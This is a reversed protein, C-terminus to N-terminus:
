WYGIDKRFYNINNRNIYGKLVIKAMGFYGLKKFRRNDQGYFHKSIRFKRKDYKRSLVYDESHQLTEDFQGYERFKDTRTLFYAGVAFPTKLSIIKNVFNFLKFFLHTKFDNSISKVNCTMLDLRKNIMMNINDKINDKSLIIADADLFLIYETSVLSAAINRGYAVLGGDILEINLKDQFALILDSIKDRTKDSSFGDAIIVRTGRIESQLYISEITKYIYNEENYSPIIITIKNKIDM